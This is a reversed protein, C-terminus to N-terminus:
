SASTEKTFVMTINYGYLSTRLTFTHREKNYNAIEKVETNGNKTILTLKTLEEDIEYSGKQSTITSNNKVKNELYYSGNGKLEVYNYEYLSATLGPAGSISTLNYKGVVESKSCGVLCLLMMFCISMLSIMKKM